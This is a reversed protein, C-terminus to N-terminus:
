LNHDKVWEFTDALTTFSGLILLSGKKLRTTEALLADAVNAYDHKKSGTMVVVKHSICELAAVCMSLDRDERTRLIVVDFFVQMEILTPLLAAVAHENHAADFWFEFNQFSIRQLRGPIQLECIAAECQDVDIMHGLEKTSKMMELAQWALGANQRQHEGLTALSQTFLKAFTVHKDIQNLVDTVEGHQHVSLAFHCGDFVSAKDKAILTLTEGLWDQHDLAIPTLLGMDAPVATTADLRAGVGAELIEIDVQQMSFYLLALVTATEFYSTESKLALPMVTAMLHYLAHHSIAEGQVCIREHFANIHPSTYLGVKLGCAQLAAALFQSTSGKGNTGAVRVRFRPTHLVFGAEALSTILKLVRQHGPQYDRDASPLGLQNLWVEIDYPKDALTM